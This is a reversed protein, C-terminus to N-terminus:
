FRPPWDALLYGRNFDGFAVPFAGGIADPMQEWIKVPYGLLMPPQGEAIAPQWLPRLTSDKLKAVQGATTSSMVWNANSRYAANLTYMVDVLGDYDVSAPSNDGGLIYQYAAAARPSVADDATSVPTTNLMGTPKNTGNGSIVAAGEYIAFQEAVARTLWDGVNFFVDDLSWETCQPYAYLEGHTPARERLQPTNTETRSDTEGVWGANAGNIDVLEKYDSTGVRIVRVLDRVPSLKLELKGIERGIVEPVAFGGDANSGISISKGELKQQFDGLAQKTSGDRPKRLWNMFLKKHERGERTETDDGTRGPSGQKSEIEERADWKAAHDKLLQEINGLRGGIANERDAILAKMEELTM